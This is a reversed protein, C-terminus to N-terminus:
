EAVDADVVKGEYSPSVSGGSVVMKMGEEVSMKLFKIEDKPIVLFYGSTPNPTTPLFVNVSNKGMSEKIEGRSVGTTFGVSYIGKRPYEILVVQKFITKGQGLFASSIQKLANYTRGMIPVRILVKEWFSFFRNIVLIRAGWGILAVAAIAAVFILTKAVFVRHTAMTIPTFAKMLPDLVINNLKIVIFRIVAVTIAAPLLIVMGNLFSVLFSNWLRKKM